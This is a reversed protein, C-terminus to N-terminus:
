FLWITMICFELTKSREMNYDMWFPSHHWSSRVGSAMAELGWHSHPKHGHRGHLHQNDCLHPHCLLAVPPATCGPVSSTVTQEGDAEVDWGDKPHQWGGVQGSSCRFDQAWGVEPRYALPKSWRQMRPAQMIVCWSQSINTSSCLSDDIAKLQSLSFCPSSLLIHTMYTFNRSNQNYAESKVNSYCPCSGWM